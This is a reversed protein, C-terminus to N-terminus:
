KEDIFWQRVKKTFDEKTEGNKYYIEKGIIVKIPHRSILIHGVPLAKYANFIKIPLVPLNSEKAFYFLGYLFRDVLNSSTRRGEPFIILHNNKKQLFSVVKGVVDSNKRFESRYVPVSMRRLVFGLIPIKLLEFKFLWFHSFGKTLFGLIPIDIISQHNAAFIVPKNPLNEKGSIKIPLFSFRLILSYGLYAVLFFAKQPKKWSKPFLSLLIVFPAIVIIVAVFLIYSIISRIINLVKM